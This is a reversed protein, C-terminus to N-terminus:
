LKLYSKDQHPHYVLNVDALLVKIFWLKKFLDLVAFLAKTLLSVKFQLVISSKQVVLLFACSCLIHFARKMFCRQFCFHTYKGQGQKKLEELTPSSIGYTFVIKDVISYLHLFNNNLRNIFM